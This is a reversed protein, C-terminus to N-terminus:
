RDKEVNHALRMLAEKLEENEIHEASFESKTRVDLFTGNELEILKQFQISNVQIVDNEQYSDQANASYFM